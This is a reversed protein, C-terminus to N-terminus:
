GCPRRTSLCETYKLPFTQLSINSMQSRHMSTNFRQIVLPLLKIVNASTLYHKKMDTDHQVEVHFQLWYLASYMALSPCGAQKYRKCLNLL